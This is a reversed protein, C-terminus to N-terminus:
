LYDKKWKLVGVVDLENHFMPSLLVSVNEYLMVIAVAATKAGIGSGAPRQRLWRAVFNESEREEYGVAVSKYMFLRGHVAPLLLCLMLLLWLRM